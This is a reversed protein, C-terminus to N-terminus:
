LTINQIILLSGSLTLMLLAMLKIHKASVKAALLRGIRTFLLVIPIAFLTSLVIDYSPLTGFPVVILRMLSTLCFFALLTIRIETISWQQRYCQFVVPPGFTSFLGGLLGSMAGAVGFGISPESREVASRKIVLLGCCLLIVSGLMINLWHSMSQSLYELLIYGAAMFPIATVLLINFARKNVHHTNKFVLSVSNFLSLFSVLFTTATLPMIELLTFSSVVILGFGFGSLTQLLTAVGLLAFTLLLTEIVM